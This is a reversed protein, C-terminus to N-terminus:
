PGQDTAPVMVIITTVNKGHEQIRQGEQRREVGRRSLTLQGSTGRMQITYSSNLSHEREASTEETGVPLPCIDLWGSGSREVISEPGFIVIATM